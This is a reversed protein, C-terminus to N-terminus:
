SVRALNRVDRAINDLQRNGNEALRNADRQLRVLPSETSRTAGLMGFIAAASFSGASRFATTTAANGAGGPGGAARTAETPLSNMMYAYDTLLDLRAQLSEVEAQDAGRMAADRERRLRQTEEQALRADRRITDEGAAGELQAVTGRDRVGQVANRAAEERRALDNDLEERSVFPNALIWAAHEIPIQVAYWAQLIDAFAKFWGSKLFTWGQTFLVKIETWISTFTDVFFDKWSNLMVQVPQRIQEWVLLASTKLIDWLTTWDGIAMADRIGQWAQGAVSVITAFMASFGATTAAWAGEFSSAIGSGAGAMDTSFGRFSDSLSGLARLAGYIAGGLLIFPYAIGGTIIISVLSILVAFAAALLNAGASAATTAVAAKWMLLSYIFTAASMAVTAIKAIGMAISYALQGSVVFWLGVSLLKTAAWALSLVTLFVSSAASVIATAVGLVGFGTAAFSAAAWLGALLFKTVVFLANLPVLAFSAAYVFGGFSALAAGAILLAGGIRFIIDFMSRNATVFERVSVIMGTLTTFFDKMAPAAAAGIERWIGNIAIGMDKYARSTENALTLDAASQTGELFDVRAARAGIGARGGTLDLALGGRGFVDRQRAIRQGEDGIRALGDAFMLLREGQSAAQLEELSLGMEQLARTADASGTGAAQMFESMKAVSPVLEEGSVRVGDLISDLTQFEIGTQRMTQRMEDGWATFVSLGHLFPATIAAGGAAIGAGISAIGRGWAQFKQKAAALGAELATQNTALSVHGRGMEISQKSM